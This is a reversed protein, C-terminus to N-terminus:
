GDQWRVARFRDGDKERWQGVLWPGMLEAGDSRKGGYDGRYRCAPTGPTCTWVSRSVDVVGLAGDALVFLDWPQSDPLPPVPADPALPTIVLRSTEEDYEGVWGDGAQWLTRQGNGPPTVPAVAGDLGLRYLGRDEVHDVDGDSSRAARVILGSGDELWAGDPDVLLGDPLTLTAVAAGALDVVRVAGALLWMVDSALRSVWHGPNEPTSVWLALLRGDPSWLNGSVEAGAPLLEPERGTRADIVQVQDLYGLVLAQGDPSFQSYDYLGFGMIPLGSRLMRVEGTALDVRYLMEGSLSLNEGHVWAYQLYGALPGPPLVAITRGNTGDAPFAEVVTGFDGDPGATGARTIILDGGDTWGAMQLGATQRFVDQPRAVPYILEEGLVDVNGTDVEVRVLMNLYCGGSLPATLVMSLHRQDPSLLPWGDVRGYLEWGGPTPQWQLGTLLHQRTRALEQVGPRPLPPLVIYELSEDKPDTVYLQFGPLTLTLHDWEPLRDLALPTSGIFRGDAYVLAGAPDTDIVGPTGPVPAAANPVVPGPEPATGAPQPQAGSEVDPSPPPINSASAAGPGAPEPNGRTCGSLPALLLLALLIYAVLRM